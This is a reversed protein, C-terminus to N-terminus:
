LRLFEGNLLSLAEEKNLEQFCACLVTNLPVQINEPLPKQTEMTDEKSNKGAFHRSLYRKLNAAANSAKDWTSVAPGNQIKVAHALHLMEIHEANLEAAILQQRLSETLGEPFSGYSPKLKWRARWVPKVIERQWQGVADMASEMQVEDLPPAGVAGAWCCWFLFNVDIDHNIQLAMCAEHVGSRQHAEITFNWLPHDEFEM